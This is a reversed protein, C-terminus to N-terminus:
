AAFALRYVVELAWSVNEAAEQESGGDSLRGLHVHGAEEGLWIRCRTDNGGPLRVLAPRGIRPAGGPVVLAADGPAFMPSMEDTVVRVAFAGPLLQSLNGGEVYEHAPQEEAIAVIRVALASRGDYLVAPEFAQAERRALLAAPERAARGALERPPEGAPVLERPADHPDYIRVLRTAPPPLRNPEAGPSPAALLLDLFSEFPAALSPDADLAQAIRVLLNQHRNRAGSIVVTGRSAVGTLLWQLDEGTQECIRVIVDGPPVAGREFREYEDLPVGLRRAFEGKGGPGFHRRRLERIRGALQERSDNM